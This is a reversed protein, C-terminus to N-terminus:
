HIKLIRAIKEGKPLLLCDEYTVAKLFIVLLLYVVVAVLIACGCAIVVSSVFGFVLRYVFFAAIGMALAALGSKWVSGLVKPPNPVVHHLMFLNLIMYVTFCALTGVPAGLIGIAPNGVLIYNGAVKVGDGILMNIMPLWPRNHAQM